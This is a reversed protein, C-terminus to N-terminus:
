RSGKLRTISLHIAPRLGALQNVGYGYRNGTHYVMNGNGIALSDVSRLWAQATEWTAELGLEGYYFGRDFGNLRWLGSRGGAADQGYRWDEEATTTYNWTLDSEPNGPNRIFTQFVADDQNHGMTRIEFDSPLWLLDYYTPELETHPWHNSMPGISRGDKGNILSFHRHNGWILGTAGLGHQPHRSGPYDERHIQFEGSVYFNMKMNAGTQYLSSQWNGPLDIPAVLYNEIPFHQLLGSLDRLLNSRVISRSFNNEFYYAGPPEQNVLNEDSHITNEGTPIQNWPNAATRDIFREDARGNYHSYRTGSFVTQRYPQMMWLTLVDKENDTSRYVLQWWNSTLETLHYHYIGTQNPIPEFLNLVIAGSIDSNEPDSIIFNSFDQATIARYPTHEFEAGSPWHSKPARLMPDLQPDALIHLLNELVDQNIRGDRKFLPRNSVQLIHYNEYYIMPTMSSMHIESDLGTLTANSPHHNMVFIIILMTIGVGFIITSIIIGKKQM